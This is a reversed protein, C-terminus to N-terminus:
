DHTWVVGKRVNAVRPLLPSAEPTGAICDVKFEWAEIWVCRSCPCVTFLNPRLCCEAFDRAPCRAEDWSGDSNERGHTWLGNEHLTFRHRLPGPLVPKIRLTQEMGTLRPKKKLQFLM